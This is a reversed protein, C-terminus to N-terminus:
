WRRLDNPPHYEIEDAEQWVVGVRPATETNAYRINKVVGLRYREPRAEPLHEVVGGDFKSALKVEDGAEFQLVEYLLRIDVLKSASKALTKISYYSHEQRYAVWVYTGRVFDPREHRQLLYIDEAVQAWVGSQPATTLRRPQGSRFAWYEQQNILETASGMVIQSHRENLDRLQEAHRRLTTLLAFFEAPNTETSLSKQLGAIITAVAGISDRCEKLATQDVTFMM